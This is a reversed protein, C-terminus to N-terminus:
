CQVRGSLHEFKVWQWEELFFEWVIHRDRTNAHCSSLLEVLHKDVILLYNVLHKHLISELTDTHFM